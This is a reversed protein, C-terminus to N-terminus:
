TQATTRNCCMRGKNKSVFMAKARNDRIEGKHAESEEIVKVRLIDPFPLVDHAKITCKFNDFSSPLSYLLM